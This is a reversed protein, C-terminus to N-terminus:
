FILKCWSRSRGNRGGPISMHFAVQPPVGSRASPLLPYIAFADGLSWTIMSREDEIEDGFGM